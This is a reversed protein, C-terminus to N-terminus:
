FDLDAYHEPAILGPLHDKLLPHFSPRSKIKQYWEKILPYDSWPVEGLFDLCSLNAAGAIDALSFRDAALWPRSQLLWDMYDMHFRLQARGERLTPPHPHNGGILIKEVKEHLLYANVEDMFKRDFWSCLRRVEAREAALEPLLAYRSTACDHAYETIARAGSIVIRGGHIFEVLTPPTAEPSLALFDEDIHWPDITVLKVRLKTEALAIRAQRSKPDLPWHYLTRM